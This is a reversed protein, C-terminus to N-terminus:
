VIPTWGTEQKLAKLIALNVKLTQLGAELSCPVERTRDFADLFNTAQAIFWTDRELIIKPEEIWESAPTVM